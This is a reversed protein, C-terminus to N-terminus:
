FFFTPKRKKKYPQKSGQAARIIVAINMCIGLCMSFGDHLNGPVHSVIGFHIHLINKIKLSSSPSNQVFLSM